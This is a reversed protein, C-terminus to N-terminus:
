PRIITISATDTDTVWHETVGWMGRATATNVLPNPDEINVVYSATYVWTEGPDLIGNQNIDGENAYGNISASPECIDDVVSIISLPVNGTNSVEFTYHITEGPAASTVNAVKKLSIAAVVGQPWEINACDWLENNVLLKSDEFVKVGDIWIRVTATTPGLGADDFYHVKCQYAGTEYPQQLTINEPGYGDMDDQDLSPNDATVGQLGWDPHNNGWYCDDVTDIVGGPRLLHADVDTGNTDWTLEIRIGNSVTVVNVNITDSATQGVGYNVTVTITNAGNNVNENTSFDGQAVAVAHSNGNITMIAQTISTDSVTGTITITRETIIDGDAPSTIV